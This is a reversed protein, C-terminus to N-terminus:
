SNRLFGSVACSAICGGGPRLPEGVKVPLVMFPGITHEIPVFELGPLNMQLGKVRPCFDPQAPVGLGPARRCDDGIRPSLLLCAGGRSPRQPGGFEALQKPEGAQREVGREDSEDIPPKILRGALEDEQGLVGIEGRHLGPERIPPAHAALKCHRPSWAGLRASSHSWM